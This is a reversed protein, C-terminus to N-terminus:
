SGKGFGGTHRREGLSTYVIATVVVALTTYISHLELSIPVLARMAM